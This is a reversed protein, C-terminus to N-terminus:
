LILLYYYLPLTVTNATADRTDQLAYAARAGAADGRPPAPAPRAPRSRTRATADVAGGRGRGRGRVRAHAARRAGSWWALEAVALRQVAPPVTATEWM